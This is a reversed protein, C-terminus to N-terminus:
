STQTLRTPRAACWRQEFHHGVIRVVQARERLQVGEDRLGVAQEGGAASPRDVAAQLGPQLRQVSKASGTCSIDSGGRVAQGLAGVGAVARQLLLAPEADRQRHEQERQTGDEGAQGHALHALELLAPKRQFVQRAAQALRAALGLDGALGLAVKRALM